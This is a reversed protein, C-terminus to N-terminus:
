GGVAVLKWEEGLAGTTAQWPSVLTKLSKQIRLRARATSLREKSIRGCSTKPSRPGLPEPLLVVILIMRPSSCLVVPRTATNPLGGVSTEIFRRIPYRGSSDYM